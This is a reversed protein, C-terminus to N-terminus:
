RWCHAAKENLVTYWWSRGLHRLKIDGSPRSEIAQEVKTKRFHCKYCLTWLNKTDLAQQLTLLRRPVIHDVIKRDTVVNGCVQCTAHDRAYVYNRVQKWENSHYFSTAEKSRRNKDYQRTIMKGLRSKRQNAKRERWQQNALQKHQECYRETLPTLAHCGVWGCEHVM